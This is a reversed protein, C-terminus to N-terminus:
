FARAGPSQKCWSPGPCLSAEVTPMTTHSLTLREQIDQGEQWVDAGPQWQALMPEAGASHLTSRLGGTTACHMGWPPRTPKAHKEQGSRRKRRGAWRLIVLLTPAAMSFINGPKQHARTVCPWSKTACARLEDTHSHRALRCPPCSFGSSSSSTTTTACCRCCCCDALLSTLRRTRSSCAEPAVTPLGSGPVHVVGAHSRLQPNRLSLGASTTHQVADFDPRRM